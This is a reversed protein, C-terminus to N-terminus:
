GFRERLRETICAEFLRNKERRGFEITDWVQSLDAVPLRVDNDLLVAYEDPTESPLFGQQIIAIGGRELPIEVRMYYQNLLQPLDHSVEVYTRLFEEMPIGLPIDIRNVYRVGVTKPRIDIAEIFGKWIGFAHKSFEDWSTYPALWKFALNSITVEVVSRRDPSVSSVGIEKQESIAGVRQGFAIQATGLHTPTQQPYESSLTSAFDRIRGLPEACLVDFEVGVM